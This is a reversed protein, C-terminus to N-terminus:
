GGIHLTAKFQTAARDVVKGRWFMRSGPAVDAFPGTATEVVGDAKGTM